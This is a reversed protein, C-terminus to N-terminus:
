INEGRTGLRTSIQSAQQELEILESNIRDIVIMDPQITKALAQDVQM